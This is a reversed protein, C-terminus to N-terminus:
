LEDVTMCLFFILAVQNLNKPKREVITKFITKLLAVKNKSNSNTQESLAFRRM